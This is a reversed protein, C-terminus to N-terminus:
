VPPTLSCHIQKAKLLPVPHDDVIMEDDLDYPWTHAITSKPKNSKTFKISSPPRSSRAWNPDLSGYGFSTTVLSYGGVSLTQPKNYTLQTFMSFLVFVMSTKSM